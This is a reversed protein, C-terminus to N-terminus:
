YGALHTKLEALLQLCGEESLNLKGDFMSFASKEGTVACPRHGDYKKLIVSDGDVFIEFPDGVELRLTRRMEIPIVIRGLPDVKRVIGYEKM